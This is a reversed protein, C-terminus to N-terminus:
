VESTGSADLQLEKRERASTHETGDTEEAPMVIKLTHQEPNPGSDGSAVSLNDDESDSDNESPEDHDDSSKESRDDDVQSATEELRKEERYYILKRVLEQENHKGMIDDFLPISDCIDNETFDEDTELVLLMLIKKKKTANEPEFWNTQRIDEM